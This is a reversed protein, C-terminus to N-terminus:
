VFHETKEEDSITVGLKKLIEQEDELKKSFVTIHDAGHAWQEFYKQRMENKASTDMKCWVKDLHDFYATIKVKKGWSTTRSSSMICRM